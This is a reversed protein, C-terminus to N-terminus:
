LHGEAREILAEQGLAAAPASLAALAARVRTEGDKALGILVTRLYYEHVKDPSQSPAPNQSGIQAFDAAARELAEVLAGVDQTPQPTLAADKGAQYVANRNRSIECCIANVSLDIDHLHGGTAHAVIMRLKQRLDREAPAEKTLTPLYRLAAQFAPVWTEWLEQGGRLVRMPREGRHSLMECIASRLERAQTLEPNTM